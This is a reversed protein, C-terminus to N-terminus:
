ITQHLLWLPTGREGRIGAQWGDLAYGWQRWARRSGYRITLLLLTTIAAVPFTLPRTDRVVHLKNREDLYIPLKPRQRIPSASGTTGGQGHLVLSGPAFGLSMGRNRARLAWEVEECYLFYDERMMGVTAVFHRDVLISAGLIYNMRAEVEAPDPAKDITRGRGISEARALWGRWYGGFAQVTKDEYYLLSGIAHHGTADRRALMEALANPAPETDPNVIWWADSDPRARMCANVGGAYGLNAGANICEVPQGDPLRDPILARLKTYADDGGNENIVVDFSSYSSRALASICQVVEEPNRFTVICISVHM